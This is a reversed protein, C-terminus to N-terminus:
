LRCDRCVTFPPFIEHWGAYLEGQYEHASLGAVVCLLKEIMEPELPKDLFPRASTRKFIQEDCWEKM